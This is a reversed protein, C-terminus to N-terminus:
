KPSSVMLSAAPSSIADRVINETEIPHALAAGRSQKLLKAKARKVEFIM